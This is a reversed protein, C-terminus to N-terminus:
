EGWDGGSVLHERKEVIGLSSGVSFQRHLDATQGFIHAWPLFALGVDTKQLAQGWRHITGMVNSCINEHSLEM